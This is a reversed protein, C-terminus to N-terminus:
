TTQFAPLKQSRCLISLGQSFNQCGDKDLSRQPIAFTHGAELSAAFNPDLSLPKSSWTCFMATGSTSATTQGGKRAASVTRDGCPRTGNGKFM